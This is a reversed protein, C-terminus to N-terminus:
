LKSPGPGGTPSPHHLLALLPTEMCPHSRHGLTWHGHIVQSGVGWCSCIRACLCVSPVHVAFVCVRTHVGLCPLCVHACMCLLTFGKGGSSPVLLRGLRSVWVWKSFNISCPHTTVCVGVCVCSDLFSLFSFRESFIATSPLELRRHSYIQYASSLFADVPSHLNDSIKLAKGGLDIPQVSIDGWCVGASPAGRQIPPRQSGGKRGRRLTETGRGQPPHPTLFRMESPLM